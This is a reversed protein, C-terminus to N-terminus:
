YFFLHCCPLLPHLKLRHFTGVPLPLAGLNDSRSVVFGTQNMGAGTCPMSGSHIDGVHAVLNVDKDANVSNILKMKNDLLTQSYPWDGFAAVTVTAAAALNRTGDQAQASSLSLLLNLAIFASSSYM